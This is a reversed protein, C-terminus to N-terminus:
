RIGVDRRSVKCPLRTRNTSSATLTAEAQRAVRKRYNDLEARARLDRDKAEALEARLRELEGDGPQLAANASASQEDTGDGSAANGTLDEQDAM